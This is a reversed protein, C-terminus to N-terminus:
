LIVEFDEFNFYCEPILGKDTFVEGFFLCTEDDTHEQVVDAKDGANCLQTDVKAQVLQGRKFM